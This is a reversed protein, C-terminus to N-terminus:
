LQRCHEACDRATRTQLGPATPQVVCGRRAPPQVMQTQTLMSQWTQVIIFDGWLANRLRTGRTLHCMVMNRKKNAEIIYNSSMIPLGM